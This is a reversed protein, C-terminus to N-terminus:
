FLKFHQAASAQADQRRTAWVQELTRLNSLAQATGAWRGLNCGM